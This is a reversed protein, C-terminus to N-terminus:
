SVPEGRENGGNLGGREGGRKNEFIAERPSRGRGLVYTVRASRERPRGM